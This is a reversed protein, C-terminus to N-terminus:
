AYAAPIAVLAFILLLACAILVVALLIGALRLGRAREMEEATKKDDFADDIWDFQKM